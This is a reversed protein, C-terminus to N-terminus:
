SRTSAATLSITVGGSRVCSFFDDTEMAQLLLDKAVAAGFTGGAFDAYARLSMEGYLSPM